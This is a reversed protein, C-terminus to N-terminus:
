RLQLAGAAPAPACSVHGLGHSSLREVLEAAHAQGDTLFLCTPGSGALVAGHASGVRGHELHGALGPRLSLAAAQLDNHLAAGLGAVDGDRLATLMGEPVQPDPPADPRLRDFERYVEPTSLGVTSELIVWWLRRSTPVPSVVEGRGTGVATGGLLAFPVDSGLEAAIELLREQPLQTGWLADCAVLAAAADASGGAMGGAVPIGKRIRLHVGEPVGHRAALLLAARVALNSHDTPVEALAMEREARVEVSFGDARRAAVEDHLGVAQYVTALAHYGDPRRAGVRLVLNVKAPATVAVERM